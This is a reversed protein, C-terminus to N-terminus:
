KRKAFIIQMFKIFEKKEGSPASLVLIREDSIKQTVSTKQVIPNAETKWHISKSEKNYDGRMKAAYPGDDFVQGIM